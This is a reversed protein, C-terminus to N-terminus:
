VNELDRDGDANRRVAKKEDEVGVDVVFIGLDLIKCEGGRERGNKGNVDGYRKCLKCM